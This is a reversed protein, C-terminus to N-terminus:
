YLRKALSGSIDDVSEGGMPYIDGPEYHSARKQILSFTPHLYGVVTGKKDKIAPIAWQDLKRVSSADLLGLEELVHIATTFSAWPHGDSIKICIGLHKQPAALCYIGENGIKGIVGGKTEHILAQCFTGEGSIIKPYSLMAKQILGLCGAYSGTGENGAALQAYLCATQQITLLCTPLTCGDAGTTVEGVDCELLEAMTKKLLYQVPHDPSTYDEPPVGLTQCLALIGTHIGACNSFIPTPRKGLKILANKVQENLPYERGCELYKESLGIKHLVSLITKRHFAQGSHSSCIVALEKLTIDFKNIAGSHVFAVALFPKGSSRLYISAQSNGISGIVNKDSDAVCIYGDHFSEVRGSRTRIVLQPM